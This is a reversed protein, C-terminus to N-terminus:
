NNNDQVFAECLERVEFPFTELDTGKFDSQSMEKIISRNLPKISRRKKGDKAFGLQVDLSQDSRITTLNSPMEDKLVKQLAAITFYNEISYRELRICRIGKEECERAFRTRAVSSGPDNDIIAIVNNRESFVDLDVYAMIDGGLPWFKINYEHLVGDWELIKSYIPIDTPGETLIVVDSVINEVASYGLNQLIQAKYTQDSVVLSSDKIESYFIKDVLYPNVFVSSHTSIIFQKGRAKSLFLLLNKQFEPHLHSEPEEILIVNYEFDLSYCIIVLIDKLGMGSHDAEIWVTELTGFRLLLNNNQDPIISFSSKTIKQFVDSIEEFKKYEKSNLDQSKLYFLRNILGEGNPLSSGLSDYSVKSELHRKAPIYIPKYKAAPKDLYDKLIKSIVLSAGNKFGRMIELSQNQIDSEYITPQSPGYDKLFTEFSEMVELKDVIESKDLMPQLLQKLREIDTLKRGIFYKGEITLAELISTKGSNNKGCIVNIKRLGELKEEKIAKHTFIKIDTFM